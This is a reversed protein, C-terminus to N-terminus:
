KGSPAKAQRRLNDITNAQLHTFYGAELEKGLETLKNAELSRLWALKTKASLYKGEEIEKAVQAYWSDDIWLAAFM